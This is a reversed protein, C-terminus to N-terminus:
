LNGNMAPQKQRWKLNMWGRHLVGAFSGKQDPEANLERVFGQLESVFRGRQRAFESFVSRYYHHNIEESAERYGKEGDKCTEILHNLMQVLTENTVSM